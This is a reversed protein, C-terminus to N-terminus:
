RHSLGSSSEALLFTSFPFCVEFPVRIICHSLSTAAILDTNRKPWTCHVNYMSFSMVEMIKKSHSQKPLPSSLDKEKQHTCSIQMSYKIVYTVQTAEQAFTVLGLPVDNYVDYTLFRSLAKQARLSLCNFMALTARVCFRRKGFLKSM